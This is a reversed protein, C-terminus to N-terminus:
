TRGMRWRMILYINVGIACLLTFIGLIITENWIDWLSNIEALEPNSPDYRVEVEKGISFRFYRNWWGYTNQSQVEYSQGDVQFQVIPTFDSTFSVEEELLRVVTGQTVEGSTTLTYSRWGLWVALAALLLWALNLGIFWGFWTAVSFSKFPQDTISMIM